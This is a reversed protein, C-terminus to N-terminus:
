DLYLFESQNFLVRCLNALGHEQAFEAFKEREFDTPARGLTLQVGLEVQEPLTVAQQELREAFSEAMVLQFPNNLMSLAQLATLTESRKPTSQSSDACDLTTMYPDPQSRVIFRYISRRHTAPDRPDFKHYEYHPSHAEKELKFVFFGPGGMTKDLKGSVSLISDRIEEAELRRRNMRWLFQNSSDKADYAEHHRSSQRYVSSTVILRHLHKFSQDHDRFEVALWDLLEPHTPMQGMRGFDNPSGVIAQDFHYYWIRNVISRWTLPHDRSTIWQALAARRESEDHDTPLNLAYADQGPLPLTGPLAEERPDTVNGRHLVHIERPIGQTPQFSGQPKFHTAAAYVMKGSPLSKLQAELANIRSKFKAQQAIREPTEIQKELLALSQRAQNLEQSVNASISKPWLGDVLNTRRWRIPAEISDLSQINKNLAVNKNHKDFVELESLAFIFDNQRPALKTATIRVFRATVPVEVQYSALLPNPYDETTEDAMVQSDSFAADSAAEIKFRLPFGFGPGIGAYDDYCPHLVVKTIETPDGLDIQVWKVQDITKEIHSHYGHQPVTTEPKAQQRLTQIKTRLEVLQKGGAAAIERQLNALQKEASQKDDTLQLRKKEIQPDIDYPREARDVAAFVAQIGYYHQQTYPDFKHDHCRACQITVSCFTNLTNSVMEDRDLNRANKGDIKSAPVEVHGIFDWPGAAIFGLGLIGDQEGPYLADGAIQEEVFRAYPKDENFSRIVYDRYPWANRRLKDKDYGCTDAYKVVDLWHRAWREGYHPSALLHEVLQQYGHEGEDLKAMWQRMEEPTPPLGILDYYLRRVLTRSDAEPSFNMGRELLQTLIFADIPTRVRAQSTEPIEPVPPRSLAKRSWWNDQAKLKLDRPWTAGSAIWRRIMAIEQQSLPQGGQPMEPPDGTIYELLFSATPDGPVISEGSDGGRLASLSNSLSLGGETRQDNHCTVCNASLIPAVSDQFFGQPLNAEQAYTWGGLPFLLFLSAARVFQSFLRLM